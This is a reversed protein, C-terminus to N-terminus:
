NIRVIPKNEDEDRRKIAVIIFLVMTIALLGVVTWLIFMQWFNPSETQPSQCPGPFDETPFSHRREERLIGDVFIESKYTVEYDAELDLEFVVWTQSPPVSVEVFEGDGVKRWWKITVEGEAILKEVEEDINTLVLKGEEVAVDIGSLDVDQKVPPPDCEICTGCPDPPILETIYHCCDACEKIQLGSSVCDPYEITTWEDPMDHPLMPLINSDLEGCAACEKIQLGSSVCDPYEITTWEDPMDHPLMPLIVTDPEGCTLCHRMEHGTSTCTPLTVLWVGPWAHGFASEGYRTAIVDDCTVCVYSEVADTACTAALTEIWERSHGTALISRNVSHGCGERTCGRAEVGGTTCTAHTVVTWDDPMEHGLEVGVTITSEVDNCHTCRSSEQGASTCTAEKTPVLVHNHGHADIPRNEIHM